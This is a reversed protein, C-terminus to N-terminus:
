FISSHQSLMRKRMWRSPLGISERLRM